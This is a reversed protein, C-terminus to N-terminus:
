NFKGMAIGKGESVIAELAESVKKAVKKLIEMEKPKFNGLIFDYVAKEGKPKKIKGSLTAPSIGVRLRVFAETKIARRISEIGKHGGAGRNFSIKTAGLSLDLDDHIVVLQEAQKKSKVLSAIAKGSNNMFTEPEILLVNQRALKGKSALANLKKNKEWDSFDNKKRFYDLVVRGTNHRSNEYEEGPNGLGAIIWYM